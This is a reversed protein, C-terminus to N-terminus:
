NLAGAPCITVRYRSRCAMGISYAAGYLMRSITKGRFPHFQILAGGWSQFIMTKLDAKTMQLAFMSRESSSWQKQIQSSLNSEDTEAGDEEAAREKMAEKELKKKEADALRENEERSKNFM